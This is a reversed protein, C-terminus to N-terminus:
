FKIALGGTGRWFKYENSASNSRFYRLDARVGIHDNFTGMVGGGFDWAFDIARIRDVFDSNKETARM